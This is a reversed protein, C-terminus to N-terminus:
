LIVFLSSFSSFTYHMVFLRLHMSEAFGQSRIIVDEDVWVWRFQDKPIILMVIGDNYIVNLFEYLAKEQFSLTHVSDWFEKKSFRDLWYSEFCVTVEEIFRSILIMIEKTGSLKESDNM